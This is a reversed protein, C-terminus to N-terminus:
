QKSNRAREVVADFETKSADFVTKDEAWMTRWVPQIVVVGSKNGAVERAAVNNEMVTTGCDAFRRKHCFRHSPINPSQSAPPEDVGEPELLKLCHFHQLYWDTIDIGEERLQLLMRHFAVTAAGASERSQDTGIIYWEATTTARSKHKSYDFVQDFPSFKCNQDNGLFQRRIQSGYEELASTPPVFAASIARLHKGDQSFLGFARFQACRNHRGELFQLFEEGSPIYGPRHRRMVALEKSTPEWRDIYGGRIAADDADAWAGESLDHFINVDMENARYLREVHPLDEPTLERFSAERLIEAHAALSSESRSEDPEKREDGDAPSDSIAGEIRQRLRARELDEPTGGEGQQSDKDVPADVREGEPRNDENPTEEPM